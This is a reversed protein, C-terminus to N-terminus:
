SQHHRNGLEGGQRWNAKLTITPALRPSKTRSHFIEKMKRSMGTEICISLITNHLIIANSRTQFFKLGMRQARGMYVWYVADQSIKWKHNYAALRPRTLDIEELDVWNQDMPYVATFFVTARDRGHTAGGANLRSQFISHFNFVSAVHYNLSATPFSCPTWCLRIWLIRERIVKSLVSTFLMFRRGTLVFSSDKRTHSHQQAPKRCECDPHSLSEEASSESRIANASTKQYPSM